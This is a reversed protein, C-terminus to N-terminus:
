PCFDFSKKSEDVVEPMGCVLTMWSGLIGDSLCGKGYQYKPGEEQLIKLAEPTYHTVFSQADVPDPADLGTWQINQIFYEGDFLKSELYAKSKNMLEEYRSIDDGVTKGMLCIAQLAGVYFSTIM